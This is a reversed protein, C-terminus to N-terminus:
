GKQNKIQSLHVMIQERQQGVKLRIRKVVSAICQM